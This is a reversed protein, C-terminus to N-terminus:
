DQQEDDLEEAEQGEGEKALGGMSEALEVLAGALGEDIFRRDDQNLRDGEAKCSVVIVVRSPVTEGWAREFLDEGRRSPADQPLFAFEGSTVVDDLAPAAWSSALLLLVWGALWVGWFRVVIAALRSFM